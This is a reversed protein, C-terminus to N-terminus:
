TQSKTVGHGICDMSNELLQAVGAQEDAQYEGASGRPVLRSM